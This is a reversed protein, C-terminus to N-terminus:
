KFDKIFKSLKTYAYELRAEGALLENNNFKEQACILYYIINDIEDQPNLSLKIITEKINLDEDYTKDHELIKM